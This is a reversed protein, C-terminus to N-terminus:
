LTDARPGSREPTPRVLLAVLGLLLGFGFIFVHSGVASAAAAQAEVGALVFGATWGAEWSGVGGPASIPLIGTLHLGTAGILVQVFGVSALAQEVGGPAGGGVAMARVCLYCAGYHSLWLVLSALTARVLRTGTVASLHRGTDAVFGGIRGSDWGRRTVARALAAALPRMVLAVVVMGALVAALTPILGGESPLGLLDGRAMALGAALFALVSLLDLVRCVVLAATGEALPHGAEARLMLPLAAEGSRLPLLLNFVNHRASISALHLMSLPRPADPGGEADAGEARAGGTRAGGGVIGLLVGLRVARGAYTFAYLGFAGALHGWSLGTLADAVARGDLDTSTIVLVLLVAAVLLMVGVRKM